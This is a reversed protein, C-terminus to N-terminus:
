QPLLTLIRATGPFGNLEEIPPGHAIRTKPLEDPAIKRSHRDVGSAHQELWCTRCVHASKRAGRRSSSAGGAARHPGREPRKLGPRYRANSLEARRLRFVQTPELLACTSWTGAIIDASYDHPSHARLVKTQESRASRVKRRMRNPSPTLQM